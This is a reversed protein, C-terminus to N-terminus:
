RKTENSKYIQIMKDHLRDLSEIVSESLKREKPRKECYNEIFKSVYDTFKIDTYSYREGRIHRAIWVSENYHVKKTFFDFDTALEVMYAALSKIKENGFKYIEFPSIEGDSIKRYECITAYIEANRKDAFMETTVCYGCDAFWDVDCSNLLTGIIINEIEQKRTM